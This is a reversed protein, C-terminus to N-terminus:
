IFDYLLPHIKVTGNYKLLVLSYILEGTEKDAIRIRKIEGDKFKKLFDYQKTSLREDMKKGLIEVTNKAIEMTIKEGYSYMIAANVIKTIERVVGGSKEVFFDLVGKDFFQDENMRVTIIKKLEKISEDNIKVVPVLFTDYHGLEPSFQLNYLAHIPITSIINAMISRFIFADKIFLREYVDVPIKESGDIIFLLDKGLNLREIDERIEALIVNFDEIIKLPNKKVQERIKKATETGAALETKINFKAKFIEFFSIGAGIENENTIKAKKTITKEIETDTIWEKLIRDLKNHIKLKDLEEALRYILLIFYDEFQFTDIALETELEIHVSFYREPSHMDNHFKRMEVTKGSGKYGSFLIKVYDKPM